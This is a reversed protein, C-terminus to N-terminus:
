KSLSEDVSEKFPKLFTNAEKPFLSFIHGELGELFRLLFKM